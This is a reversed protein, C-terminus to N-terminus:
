DYSQGAIQWLWGGWSALALGPGFPIRTTAGPRGRHGLWAGTLTVLAGVFVIEPLLAPGLWGGAAALLKADGGGLGDRGRMARYLMAIAELSFWAALAAVCHLHFVDRGYWSAFYLGAGLLPITLYDPLTFSRLDIAALLLLSWGLLCGEIVLWARGPMGTDVPVTLCVAGAILLAAAEMVPHYPDIRAQCQRCRGRLLAYSVLPVLDRPALPTDCAPCHSRGLFPSRGEPLRWALVGLFSGIFPSVILLDTALSTM